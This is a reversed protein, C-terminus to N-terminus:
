QRCEPPLLRDPTERLVELDFCEAGVDSARQSNATAKLIAQTEAATTAANGPAAAQAPPATVPALKRELMATPVKYSAFVAAVTAADQAAVAAPAMGMLLINKYFGGSDLPLSCMAGMAKSPTPGTLSIVFRGCQGLQPPLQLPTATQFAIQPVPKGALQASNQLIMVLKDTLKSTYPMSLDSGSPGHQGAQYAGNHAVYAIGLYLSEGQPGSMQIYTGQGQTVKWGSPVGASASQDPATYPQLPIAGATSSTGQAALPVVAGALAVMPAMLGMRILLGNRKAHTM